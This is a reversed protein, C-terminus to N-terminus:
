ASCVHIKQEAKGERSWDMDPLHLSSLEYLKKQIEEWPNIGM